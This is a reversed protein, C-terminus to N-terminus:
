KNLKSLLKLTISKKAFATIWEIENVNEYYLFLGTQHVNSIYDVIISTIKNPSKVKLVKLINIDKCTSVLKHCHKCYTILDKNPADWPEKTYKLHHIQLETETDLCLKCKFKDRNLIELRKKQWKPSKLKESYNM